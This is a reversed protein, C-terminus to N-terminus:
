MTTERTASIPTTEEVTSGGPCTRQMGLRVTGLWAPTEPAGGSVARVAEQKRSGTRGWIWLQLFSPSRTGGGGSLHFVWASSPCVNGPNLEASNFIEACLSLLISGLPLSLTTPFAGAQAFAVSLASPSLCSPPLQRM